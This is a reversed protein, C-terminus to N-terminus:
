LFIRCSIVPAVSKALSLQLQPLLPCSVMGQGSQRTICIEQKKNLDQGGTQVGVICKPHTVVEREGVEWHPYIDTKEKLNNILVILKSGKFPKDLVPTLRALQAAKINELDPCLAVARDQELPAVFLEMPTYSSGTPCRLCYTETVTIVIINVVTNM